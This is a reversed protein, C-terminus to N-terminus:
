YKEIIEGEKEIDKIPPTHHRLRRWGGRKFNFKGLHPRRLLEPYDKLTLALAGMFISITALWLVIQLRAVALIFGDQVVAHAFISLSVAGSMGCSLAVNYLVFRVQAASLPDFKKM